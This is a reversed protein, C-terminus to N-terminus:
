NCKSAGCPKQDADTPSNGKLQHTQGARAEWGWPLEEPIGVPCVPCEFPVSNEESIVASNCEGSTFLLFEVEVPHVCKAVTWKMRYRGPSSVSVRNNVIHLPLSCPSPLSYFIFLPPLPFGAKENQKQERVQTSGVLYKGMAAPVNNLVSKLVIAKMFGAGECSAFLHCNSTEFM